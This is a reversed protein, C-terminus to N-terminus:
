DLSDQGLDVYLCQFVNSYRSLKSIDGYFNNLHRTNLMIHSCYANDYCDDLVAM